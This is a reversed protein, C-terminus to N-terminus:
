DDDRRGVLLRAAEPGAREDRRNGTKGFAVLSSMRFAVPSGSHPMCDRADRARVPGNRAELLEDPQEPVVGWEYAAGRLRSETLRVGTLREALALVAAPWRRLRPRADLRRERGSRQLCGRDAAVVGAM